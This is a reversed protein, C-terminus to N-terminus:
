RRHKGKASQGALSQSRRLRIWGVAYLLVILSLFSYSVAQTLKPTFQISHPILYVGLMIGFAAAGFWGLARPSYIDRGLVGKSFSGKGALTVFLLYAFLLQTKNDTADVGFPVGEWIRGFMYHNMAFGFPYAGFFSCVAALFFYVALSRADRNGRRLSIAHLSGM